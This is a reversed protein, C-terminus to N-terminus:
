RIVKQVDSVPRIWPSQKRLSAPLANVAASAEAKGSYVGSVVVYWDRGNHKTQYKYLNGTVKNKWENRFNSAGDSSYSGLLQVIYGSNPALLALEDPTYSKTATPKAAVSSPTAVAIVPAAPEISAKNMSEGNVAQSAPEVGAVDAQEASTVDSAETVNESGASPQDLSAVDRVALETTDVTVESSAAPNLQPEGPYNFDGSVVSVAGPAVSGSSGEEEQWAYQYILLMVLLTAVGAIALINQVPFAGKRRVSSLDSGAPRTPAALMREASTLVSGAWCGSGAMLQA